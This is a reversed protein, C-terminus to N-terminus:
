PRSTPSRRVPVPRGTGRARAVKTRHRARDVNPTPMAAATGAAGAFPASHDGHSCANGLVLLALAAALRLPKEFM